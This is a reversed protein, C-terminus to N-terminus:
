MERRHVLRLWYRDGFIAGAALGLRGYVEPPIGIDALYLAGVVAEPATALGTKPLALTLTREARVVAGPALGSTADLGSPVDLALVRAARENCLEILQSARGRPAGRLSYGILADVVLDAQGIAQATGGPAIPALGAAQLVKLQARAADGLTAVERDLVLSVNLGRNHLHRACCLGGGGNGGAGALVTVRGEGGLMELANGALNRGANEMMQLLGLGFQEVALRDVEGM